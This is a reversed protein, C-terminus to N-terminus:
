EFVGKVYQEFGTKIENRFADADQVHMAHVYLTDGNPAIDLSLTGPTLTILNALLTIAAPNKIDLPVAVVAPRMTHAPTLIEYTVRLNALILQWIFFGAFRIIQWVKRFYAAQETHRSIIWLLLFGVGFGFGFNMPTLQGTLAVWALALLINFLLM